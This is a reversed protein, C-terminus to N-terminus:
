QPLRQSLATWGPSRLRALARAPGTTALFNSPQFPHRPPEEPPLLLPRWFSRTLRFIRYGHALLAKHSPAPFPIHEEFLIDRILGASLMRRAGAFVTAEHGEVDVKMVGASPIDLSDLRALRIPIGRGRHELSAVGWNASSDAPLGLAGAGARDSLAVPRVEIPLPHWAAVNRRLIELVPPNPEFSVVRGRPGTALALVLSMYGINAGADIATESPDTLRLIAETLTLDYVGQTAIARGLLEASSAYISCNWPLRLPRVGPAPRFLLRRLIQSPRFLYEPKLPNLM